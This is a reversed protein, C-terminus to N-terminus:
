KVLWDNVQNIANENFQGSLNLLNLYNVAYDYQKKRYEIQQKLVERKTDLVDIVTATGYKYGKEMADFSKQASLIAKASAKISAVNASVNLYSEQINKSILRTKEEYTSSSREFEAQMERVRANTKGGSYLPMSLNISAVQSKYESTSAAQDGINSQSASLQLYLTPLHAASASKMSAEASEVKKKLGKLQHNFRLGQDVWYDKDRGDFDAYEFSDSFKSLSSTVDYGVLEGLAARTIAVTNKAAIEEAALRDLRAEIDLVDTLLALQREYMSRQSKLESATLKKESTIQSLVDEASLVAAYRDLLDVSVNAVIALYNEESESVRYDFSEKNNFKAKNFLDQTLSLQYSEGNYNEQTTLSEHHTRNRKATFSVEPLLEGLAQRARAKNAELDAAATAISPSSALTEKHLTILDVAQLSQCITLTTVLLVYHLKKM